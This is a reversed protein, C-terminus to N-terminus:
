VQNASWFDVLFIFSLKDACFVFNASILKQFNEYNTVFKKSDALFNYYFHMTKIKIQPM